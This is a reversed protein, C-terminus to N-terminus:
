PNSGTCIEVSKETDKQIARAKFTGPAARAFFSPAPWLTRSEANRNRVAASSSVKPLVSVTAIMPCLM